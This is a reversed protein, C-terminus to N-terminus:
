KIYIWLIAWIHKDAQNGTTLILMLTMTGDKPQWFISQRCACSTPIPKFKIDMQLCGRVLSQSVPIFSYISWNGQRLIIKFRIKYQKWSKRSLNLSWISGTIFDIVWQSLLAERNPSNVKRWKLKDNERQEELTEGDWLRM